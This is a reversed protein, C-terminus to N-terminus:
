ENEDDSDTRERYGGRDVTLDIEAGNARMDSEILSRIYDATTKFRRKGKAFKNIRDRNEESVLIHIPKMDPDRPM